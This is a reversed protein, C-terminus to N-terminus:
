PWQSNKREATATNGYKARWESVRRDLAQPYRPNVQGDIWRKDRDSVIDRLSRLANIFVLDREVKPTEVKFRPELNPMTFDLDSAPPAVPPQDPRKKAGARKKPKVGNCDCPDNGCFLCPEPKKKAPV